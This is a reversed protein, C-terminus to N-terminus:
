RRSDFYWFGGLGIYNNKIVLVDAIAFPDASSTSDIKQTLLPM